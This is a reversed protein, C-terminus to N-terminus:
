PYHGDYGSRHTTLGLLQSLPVSFTLGLAFGDHPLAHTPNTVINSAFAANAHSLYEVYPSVFVFDYLKFSASAGYSYERRGPGGYGQNTLFTQEDKTLQVTTIQLAYSDFPRSEFPARMTLGVDAAFNLGGVSPSTTQQDNMANGFSAFGQLMRPASTDPRWFTQMGSLFFGDQYYSIRKACTFCLQDTQPVKNYYYMAEASSPYASRPTSWQYDVLYATHYTPEWDEWGNTLSANTDQQYWMGQLTSNDTVNYGARALWNSYNPFNFASAKHTIAITSMCMFANLCDPRAVYDNVYGKGGEVFAKKDLFQQELTLRTLHATVPVYGSASANIVDGAQTFYNNTATQKTISPVASEIFHISTGDWGVQPGLYYDFGANIQTQFQHSNERVGFDPNTVYWEGAFIIPYFGAANLTDGLDALPGRYGPTKPAPAASDRATPASAGVTGAQGKSTPSTTSDTNQPDAAPEAHAAFATLVMVLALSLRSPVLKSTYKKMNM